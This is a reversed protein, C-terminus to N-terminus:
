AAIAVRMPNGGPGEMTLSPAAFAVAAALSVALPLAITKQRFYRAFGTWNKWLHLGVPLLLLMSLWEHMGHFLPTSVHFFLFGGSIASVLFLGVTFTTGYKKLTDRM